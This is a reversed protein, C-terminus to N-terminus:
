LDSNSHLSPRVNWGAFLACILFFRDLSQQCCNIEKYGCGSYRRVFDTHVAKHCFSCNDWWQLRFQIHDTEYKRWLRCFAFDCIHYNSGSNFINYNIALDMFTLILDFQHLVLQIQSGFREENVSQDGVIATKISYPWSRMNVGYGVFHLLCIHNGSGSNFLNWNMERIRFDM